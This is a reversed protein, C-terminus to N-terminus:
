FGPRAEFEFKRGGVLSAYTAVRFRGALPKGFTELYGEITYTHPHTAVYWIM